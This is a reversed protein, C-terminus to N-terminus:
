GILSIIEKALQRVEFAAKSNPELQIVSVGEVMCVQFATRSRIVSEFVGVDSDQGVLDAVEKSLSSNHPMNNILFRVKLDANNFKADMAIKKAGQAAWMDGPSPNMPIVALDSVMMASGPIVPDKGPPCDIVIYDFDTTFKKIENIISHGARHLGVVTCPFPASGDAQASWQVATGQDDMDVVLVRKSKTLKHDLALASAISMSMTTKGSGGKQNFVTIIKCTMLM